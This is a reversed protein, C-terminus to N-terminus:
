RRRRRAPRGELRGQPFERPQCRGCVLGDLGDVRGIWTPLPNAGFDNPRLGSAGAHLAAALAARGTGAACVISHHTVRLPRM